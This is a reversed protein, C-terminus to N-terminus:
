DEVPDFGLEVIEGLKKLQKKRFAGVAPNWGCGNCGTKKSCNVGDNYLCDNETNRDAM